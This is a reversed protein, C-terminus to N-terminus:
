SSADIDFTLCLSKCHREMDASAAALIRAIEGAFIQRELEKCPILSTGQYCHIDDHILM